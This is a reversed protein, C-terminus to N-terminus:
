EIFCGVPETRAPDPLRGGMLSTLATSLYHQNVVQRKVGLRAIWNDIKGSYRIRGMEDIVFAEPTVTAKLHHTLEYEPNLLVEVPPHYRSLFQQITAKDYYTGPFIGYFTM